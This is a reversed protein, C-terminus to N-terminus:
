GTFLGVIYRIEPVFMYGLVSCVILLVLLVIGWNIGSPTHRDYQVNSMEYGNHYKKM